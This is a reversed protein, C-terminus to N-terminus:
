GAPLGALLEANGGAAATNVTVTQEACFRYLYHPGGAKPGTGSTRKAASPSCVWWPVSSTATSTSMAWARPTPSRSRPPRRRHADASGADPRLELANIQRVVEGRRRWWRVVCCPGLLDRASRRHARDRLGGAGAPPAPQRGGANRWAATRSRLRQVQAAVGAFAEDDILPSSMPPWIRRTAWASSPWRVQLMEILGDAISTCLLRLASCRQGLLRLLAQVM